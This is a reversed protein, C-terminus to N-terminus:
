EGVMEKYQKLAECIQDICWSYNIMTEKRTMESRVDVTADVLVKAADKLKQNEAKLLEIEHGLKYEVGPAERSAHYLKDQLESIEAEADDQAAKYGAIFAFFRRDISNLDSDMKHAYDLAMDEIQEPTKM